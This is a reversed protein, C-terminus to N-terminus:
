EPQAARQELGRDYFDMTRCGPSSLLGLCSCLALWLVTRGTLGPYKLQRPYQPANHCRHKMTRM